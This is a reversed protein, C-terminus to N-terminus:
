RPVIVAELPVTPAIVLVSMDKVVALGMGEVPLSSTVKGLHFEKADPEEM